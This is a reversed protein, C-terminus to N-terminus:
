LAYKRAIQIQLTGLQIVSVSHVTAKLIFLISFFLLYRCPIGKFYTSDSKGRNIVSACVVFLNVRIQANKM